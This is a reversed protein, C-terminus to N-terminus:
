KIQGSEGLVTVLKSPRKVPTTTLSWLTRGHKWQIPGQEAEVAVPDIDTTPSIGTSCESLPLWRVLRRNVNVFDMESSSVRM